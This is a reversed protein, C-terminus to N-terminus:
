RGWIEASGLIVSPPTVSGSRGRGTSGGVVLVRGDPLLTASHGAREASMTAAQQFTDWPPGFTLATDYSWKYRMDFGGVILVDGEPLLTATHDGTEKELPGVTEFSATVPDWIENSATAMGGIVLVRGDPLLTATSDPRGEALSGAPTFTGTQADWVESMGESEPGFEDVVLVRGDALLTATHSMKPTAMTGAPSFGGSAPDWVEAQAVTDDVRDGDWGGIILVRGDPLLTATHAFRPNSLTGAPGLSGTLPDWLVAGPMGPGGVVLVRQDPLLTATSGERWRGSLWPTELAEFTGTRPDWAEASRLPVRDGDPEAAGYGGVVVVRGDDLLMATHGSRAITMSGTPTFVGSSPPMPDQQRRSGVILAAGALLATLLATLVVVSRPSVVSRPPGTRGHRIPVAQASMASAVIEARRDALFEALVRDLQDDALYRAM